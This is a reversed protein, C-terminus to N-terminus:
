DQVQRMTTLDGQYTTLFCGESFLHHAHEPHTLTWDSKSIIIPGLCFQAMQDMKSVWGKIPCQKLALEISKPWFVQLNTGEAIHRSGITNGLAVQHHEEILVDWASLIKPIRHIYVDGQHGVGGILMKRNDRVEQLSKAAAESLVKHFDAATQTITM